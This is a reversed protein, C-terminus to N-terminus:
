AMQDLLAKARKVRATEFGESLRAYVPALVATADAQRRKRMLHGALSNAVSLEWFLAQQEGAQTLAQRYLAEIEAGNADARQGLLEGKVRMIEPMYWRYGAQGAFERTAEIEALGDEIRGAAGLAAALETRFFPHFLLYMAEQMDALGARLEDIGNDPRGGRAALSGRVCRGAAHFPRLAHKYSLSLLEGALTAAAELEGLSLSIFGAAWALSVCLVTPQSATRAEEVAARSAASAQDVLGLSLLNVTRHALISARPDGGLRVIDRWRGAPPYHDIAWQLKEEAERHNGLYTQPVGLMWAATARSQLDRGEVLAAYDQAFGIADQLAMATTTM